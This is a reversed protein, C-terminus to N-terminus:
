VALLALKRATELGTPSWSPRRIHKQMSFKHSTDQLQKRNPYFWGDDIYVLPDRGISFDRNICIFFYTPVERCVGEFCIFGLNNYDRIQTPPLAINLDMHSVAIQLNNKPSSVPHSV